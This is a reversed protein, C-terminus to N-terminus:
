PQAKRQGELCHSNRSYSRQQLLEGYKKTELSCHAKRLKGLIHWGQLSRIM